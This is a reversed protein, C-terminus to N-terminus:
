IFANPHTDMYLKKSREWHSSVLLPLLGSLSFTSCETDKELASQEKQVAAGLQGIEFDRFKESLQWCRWQWEKEPLWDHPLTPRLFMNQSGIGIGLKLTVFPYYFAFPQHWHIMCDYDSHHYTTLSNDYFCFGANKSSASPHLVERCGPLVKRGFIYVVHVCARLTHILVLSNKKSPQLEGQCKKRLKSPNKKWKEKM